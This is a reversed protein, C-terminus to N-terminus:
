ISTCIRFTTSRCHTCCLFPSIFEIDTQLDDPINPIGAVSKIIFSSIVDSDRLHCPQKLWQDANFFDSSLSVLGCSVDSEPTNINVEGDIGRRSSASVLSRPSTIFYHPSILINGGNGGDAQAIVQSENLVTFEPQTVTINGGGGMGGKVSTTIASDGLHLLKGNIKLSINGGAAQEAQTSIKGRNLSLEEVITLDINGADGDGESESTIEAQQLWLREAEITITGAQAQRASTSIRGQQTITLYPTRIFLNGAHGSNFGVSKSIIGRGLDNYQDKSFTESNDASIHIAQAVDLYIKGAHGSGYTSSDIKAGRKIDLRNAVLQIQGANGRNFTATELGSSYLKGDEAQAYGDFTAHNAHVQITGSNGDTFTTISLQAGNTMLLKDTTLLVEGANGAHPLTSESNAFVLSRDLMVEQTAEITIKGAQGSSFTNSAIATENHLAVQNAKLYITGANGGTGSSSTLLSQDAIFRDATLIIDGAKGFKEDTPKIRSVDFDNVGIMDNPIKLSIARIYGQNLIIEESADIVIQGGLGKSFTATQIGSGNTMQVTKAQVRLIGANGHTNEVRTNAALRSGDTLLLNGSLQIQIMGGNGEGDTSASILSLDRMELNEAQIDIAQGDYNMTRALLQTGDLLINKGHLVFGGGRDGTVQLISNSLTMNGFSKPANNDIPTVIQNKLTLEAPGAVSFLQISGEPILFHSGEIILQGASLSLMKGSNLDLHSNTLSLAAPAATLFGFATPAAVTLLSTKTLDATFQGSDALKIVDATSFHISGNLDLQTNQGFLIGYPNLFYLDANPITSRLTGDLTSAQGGTVRAIVNQVSNAGSFTATESESLNFNQFSHFLNGGVQQGLEPTIQFDKGSLEVKAGLSGDTIVEAQAVPSICLIFLLTKITTM